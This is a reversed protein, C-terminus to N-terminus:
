VWFANIGITYGRKEIFTQIATLNEPYRAILLLEDNIKEPSLIKKEALPPKNEYNLDYLKFPFNHNQFDAACLKGKAGMGVIGVSTPYPFFHRFWKLKLQFFAEQQYRESNRSTRLPHERWLLTVEDISHITFGNKKWHFCLDYDEPYSLNELLHYNLFAQTRGMWNPSAVICERFIHQYFDDQKVRNNLWKEYKQYGESVTEESFYNVKGTVIAKKPLQQLKNVMLFLRNAPMIDDADMRSLFEGKALKLAQNLAPIIGVSENKFVHIRNDNLAFHHVISYSDDESHDDIVIVEWNKYTQKKISELTQAVWKSANKM